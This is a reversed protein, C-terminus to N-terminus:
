EDAIAGHLIHCFLCVLACNSISWHACTTTCLWYTVFDLLRLYEHVVCFAYNVANFHNKEQLQACLFSIEEGFPMSQVHFVKEKAM